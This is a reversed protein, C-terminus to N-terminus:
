EEEDWNDRVHGLTTWRSQVQSQAQAPAAAQRATPRAWVSAAKVSPERPSEKWTITKKDAAVRCGLVDRTRVDDVQGIAFRASRLGSEVNADSQGSPFDPVLLVDEDHVWELDFPFSLVSSLAETLSVHDHGFVATLLLANWKQSPPTPAVAQSASRSVVPQKPPPQYSDSLSNIPAASEPTKIVHVCRRPEADFSQSQMGYAAALNKVVHRQDPKM